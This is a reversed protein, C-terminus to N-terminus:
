RCTACCCPEADALLKMRAAPDREAYSKKMLADFEQNTYDGYNFIKNTSLGLFLFNEPDAYDATWGARAVDFDGSTRCTPTTRSRHRLQLM